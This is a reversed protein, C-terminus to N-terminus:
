SNLANKMMNGLRNKMEIINNNECGLGLVLIGAANPHHILGLFKQTNLQDDGLQADM